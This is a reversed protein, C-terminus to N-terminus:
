DGAAIRRGGASTCAALTRGNPSRACHWKGVSTSGDNLSALLVSHAEGCGAAAGDGASSRVQHPVGGGFIPDCRRVHVNPQAAPATAPPAVAPREPTAPNAANARPATKAIRPTRNGHSPWSVVLAVIAAVAVAAGVLVVWQGLGGGHNTPRMAPM